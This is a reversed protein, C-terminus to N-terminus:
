EAGWAATGELKVATDVFLKAPEGQFSLSSGPPSCVIEHELKGVSSEPLACTQTGSLKYIGELSCGTVSIDFIDGGLEPEFKVEPGSGTGTILESKLKETKITQVTCAVQTRRHSQVRYMSCQEFTFADQKSQGGAGIAGSLNGKTCELGTRPNNPFSTDTNELKMLGNKGEVTHSTTGEVPLFSWKGTETKNGCVHESYKETGGETCVVFAHASASASMVVGAAFVALMSLGLIRIQRTM